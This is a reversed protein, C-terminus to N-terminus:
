RAGVLHANDMRNRAKQKLAATINNIRSLKIIGLGVTKEHTHM